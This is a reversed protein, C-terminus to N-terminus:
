RPPDIRRTIPLQRPADLLLRLRSRSANPELSVWVDPIIETMRSSYIATKWGTNAILTATDRGDISLITLGHYCSDSVEGVNDGFVLGMIVDM